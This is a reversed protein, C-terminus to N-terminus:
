LRYVTELQLSKLDDSLMANQLAMGAQRAMIKLPMLVSTPFSGVDGKEDLHNILQLVGVTKEGTSFLPVTIMSQTRYNYLRDFRDNFHYPLSEDLGAVDDIVLTEGTSAVYGCITQNDISLQFQNW